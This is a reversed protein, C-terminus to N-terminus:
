ATSLDRQMTTPARCRLRALDSERLRTDTQLYSSRVV